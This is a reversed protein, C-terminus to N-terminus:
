NDIYLQAGGGGRTLKFCKLKLSDKKDKSWVLILRKEGLFLSLDALGVLVFFPSFSFSLPSFPSFSLTSFSLGSFSDLDEVGTTSVGTVVDDLRFLATAAAAATAVVAVM